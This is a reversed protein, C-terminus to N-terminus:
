PSGAAEYEVVLEAYAQGCEFPTSGDEFLGMCVGDALEPRSEVVWELFDDVIPPNDFIFEASALEGQSVTIVVVETYEFGFARTMADVIPTRCTAQVSISSTCESEGPSADLGATWQQYHDVFSRDFRGGWPLADLAAADFSYLAEAFERAQILGESPRETTTTAASDGCAIGVLALALTLTALRKYGFSM